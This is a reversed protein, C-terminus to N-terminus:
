HTDNFNQIAWKNGTANVKARTREQPSAARLPKEDKDLVCKRGEPRDCWGDVGWMCEMTHECDGGREPYKSM